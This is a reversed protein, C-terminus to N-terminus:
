KNLRNRKYNRLKNIIISQYDVINLKVPNLEVTKSTKKVAPGTTTTNQTNQVGKGGKNLTPFTFPRDSTGASNYIYGNGPELTVLQGSWRGRKYTLTQNKSKVADNDIVFGAFLEATAISTNYPYAIYNVGPTLTATLTTADIPMGTVAIECSSSVKILYMQALNLETLQGSWRGRKYTLTQQKSKITAEDTSSLVAAMAAKLNDLTIDVNFSVWKVSNAEFAITQTVTTEETTTFTEIDSWETNDSASCSIGQVQWEYPTKPELGSITCSNGTVVANVWEGTPILAGFAIDDVDLLFQDTCDFHRIAIYGDIGEYESLDVRYNYWGGQKATMTWQQITTFDSASTNGTISVAVGFVEAPYGADQACAWFEFTGGLTLQPSVLYNDPTLADGYGDGDQDVNTFSGSVVLDTSSNHGSGELSGGEALYIGGCASGLVWTFGDGDADITTWQDMNKEDFNDSFSADIYETVRYRVNYSDTYGTWSLDATRAAPEANLDSPTACRTPTHFHTMQWESEGDEGGCISKIRVYYDTDETLNDLTVPSTAGTIPQWDLEDPDVGTEIYARVMNARGTVGVNAMDYWTGNIEVWRGNADGNDDSCTGIPYAAGDVADFVIWLNKTPDITAETPFEVWASAGTFEIDQISIQNSPATDGDNYIALTGVMASVDYAKVSSVLSGEYTGAPFMVGWHFEGGGLGVSGVYTGNDYYYWNGDVYPDKEEADPGVAWEFSYNDAFGTWSVTASTPLVPDVTIHPKPCAEDMTWHIVDSPKDVDCTPVVQAYYTTLPDLGEFTYPNTTVVVSSVEEDTAAMYYITWETAPGNETWSLTVEHGSINSATFDSPTRCDTNCTVSYYEYDEDDFGGSGSFIKDGQPDYVTYSCEDDYNGAQWLFIVVRGDCVNLTYTASSEGSPVTFEGLLILTEDDFYDYALLAAGNWGDGYSDELEFTIQCKDAEACLDTVFSVSNTWEGTGAECTANVRVEYITAMDLNSMDFRNTSLGPTEVGNIEISYSIADEVANWTVEATTGGEYNVALGTPKGCAPPEGPTFNITVKPLFTRYTITGTWAHSGNAYQSIATNTSQSVGLWTTSTYNSAYSTEYFGVLLNGGLYTYPSNLVFEWETGSWVLSGTYVNDMTTWDVFETSEFATYGVETMYIDFVAGSFYTNAVENQTYFTLKSLSAYQLAALDTAPIIFQSRNGYDCYSGHVPVYTNQDAGDNLTIVYSDTPTFTVINSWDSQDTASCYARVKATYTQEPTLQDYTFPNSNMTIPNDEDDNLCLQWSTASGNENWEFKTKSGEGPIITATLGTPKPCSAAVGLDVVIDDVYFCDDNGQASSDKIFTWKFTHSGMEVEYTKAVWDTVNLFRDMQTGDIYFVGYDWYSTPSECSAWCYFSISGDNVFDFTAEISSSSSNVGENSSKISYTGGNTHNKANTVVWPYTADNTWTAPIANDEFDFTQTERTQANAAWPALLVMLLILLLSKKKM